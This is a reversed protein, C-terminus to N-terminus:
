KNHKLDEQKFRNLLDCNGLYFCGNCPHGDKDFYVTLFNREEAAKCHDEGMFDILLRQNKLINTQLIKEDKQLSNSFMFDIIQYGM